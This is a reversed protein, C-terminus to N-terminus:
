ESITSNVSSRNRRATSITSRSWGACQTSKLMTAIIPQHVTGTITKPYALATSQINRHRARASPEPGRMLRQSACQATDAAAM